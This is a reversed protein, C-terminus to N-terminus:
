PWGKQSYTRQCYAGVPRLSRTANKRRRIKERRRGLPKVAKMVVLEILSPSTRLSPRSCTMAAPPVMLMATRPMLHGPTALRTTESREIQRPSHNSDRLRSPLVTSKILAKKSSSTSSFVGTASLWFEFRTKLPKWKRPSPKWSESFSAFSSSVFWGSWWSTIKGTM